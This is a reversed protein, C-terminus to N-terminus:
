VIELTGDARVDMDLFTMTGAYQGQGDFGCFRIRDNWIAAKPVTKCPIIPNEPRQWGSFPERSFRYEGKTHHSFILYYWGDKEFYDPCEPEDAYYWSQEGAQDMGDSGTVYIPEVERWVDLDESVLHALCGKRSEALTTTVFMHYSGDAARVVKPDRASAGTYRDSLCFSFERDKVFHVGDESVSRRLPAPSGDFTRITYFLFERDGRAIWSGTCISGEWAEDIEVAMPHQQWHVMDDTSIHAWQHAGRGWKSQHHHRDKLYLVHYRGKSFYPMCDGVFVNEEPKWGEANEFTGTVAPLESEPEPLPKIGFGDLGDGTLYHGGCPWEEDVLVDNVWLEIRYDRLRLEAPDGRQARGRLTLPREDVTYWVSVVLEDNELAVRLAPQDGACRQIEGEGVSFLLCFERDNM